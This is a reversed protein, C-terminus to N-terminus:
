TVRLHIWPKRKARHESIVGTPTWLVMHPALSQLKYTLKTFAKVMVKIITRWDRQCHSKELLEWRWTQSLLLNAATSQRLRLCKFAQYGPKESSSCLQLQFCLCHRRKSKLLLEFVPTYLIGELRRKWVWEDLEDGTLLAAWNCSTKHDLGWLPSPLAHMSWATPCCDRLLDM